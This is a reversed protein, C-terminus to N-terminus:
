RITADHVGIQQLHQMARELGAITMARDVGPVQCALLWLNRTDSGIAQAQSDRVSFLSLVKVADCLVLQGADLTVPSSAGLGLFTEGGRSYSLQLEGEVCDADFAGLSIQSQLAAINVADVIPNIRPFRVEPKTFCRIILNAVSPPHKKSDLGLSTMFAAYAGHTGASLVESRSKGQWQAHAESIADQWSEERLDDVRLRVGWVHVGPLQAQVDASRAIEEAAITAATEANETSM